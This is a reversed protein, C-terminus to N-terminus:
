HEKKRGRLGDEIRLRDGETLRPKKMTMLFNNVRDNARTLLKDTETASERQKARDGDCSLRGLPATPEQLLQAGIQHRFVFWMRFSRM